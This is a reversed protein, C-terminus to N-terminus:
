GFPSFVYSTLQHENSLEGFQIRRYLKNQNLAIPQCHQFTSEGRDLKSVKLVKFLVWNVLRYDPNTWVTTTNPCRTSRESSNSALSTGKVQGSGPRTLNEFQKLAKIRELATAVRYSKADFRNLGNSNALSM